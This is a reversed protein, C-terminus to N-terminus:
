AALLAIGARAVRAGEEPKVGSALVARVCHGEIPIPVEAELMGELGPARPFSTCGQIIKGECAKTERHVLAATHANSWAIQASAPSVGDLRPLLQPHGPETVMVITAGSHSSMAAAEAAAVIRQVDELALM